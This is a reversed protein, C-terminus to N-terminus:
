RSIPGAVAVLDDHKLDDPAIPLTWRSVGEINIQFMGISFFFKDDLEYIGEIPFGPVAKAISSRISEADRADWECYLNGTERAYLTKIWYADTSHHAKIAQAIPTAAELTLDKGVPHIVLFKAM